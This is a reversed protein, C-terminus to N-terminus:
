IENLKEWYDWVNIIKKDIKEAYKICNSTGGSTGNWLAIVLDSNDVLWENRKQMKWPAYGDECVYVVDKALSLLSFYREQTNKPWRSEQGRFPVAAVFPIDLVIAAEAIAMDWGLAMGSIVNTALGELSKVATKLLLNDIDPSYGGLKSPRHGTASIIM